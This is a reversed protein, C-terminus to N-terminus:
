NILPCNALRIVQYHSLVRASYTLCTFLLAVVPLKCRKQICHKINQWKYTLFPVYLRLAFRFFCQSALKVMWTNGVVFCGFLQTCASCPCVHMGTRARVSARRADHCTQKDSIMIQTLITEMNFSPMWWAWIAQRTHISGCLQYTRVSIHIFIHICAHVNEGRESQKHAARWSHACARGGHM